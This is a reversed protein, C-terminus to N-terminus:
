RGIDDSVSRGAHRLGATMLDFTARGQEHLVKDSTNGLDVLCQYHETLELMAQAHLKRNRIEKTSETDSDAAVM